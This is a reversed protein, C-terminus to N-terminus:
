ANGSKKRRRLLGFVLLVLFGAGIAINLIANRKKRATQDHQLELIAQGNREWEAKQAEEVRLKETISDKQQQLRIAMSDNAILKSVTDAAMKGKLRPQASATLSVAMLLILALKHM